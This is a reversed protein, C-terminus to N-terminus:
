TGAGGTTDVIPGNITQLPAANNANATGGGYTYPVPANTLPNFNNFAQGGQALAQALYNQQNVQPIPARQNFAQAIGQVNQANYGAAAGQQQTISQIQNAAGQTAWGSVAQDFQSQQGLLTARGQDVTQFAQAYNLNAQALGQQQIAQVEQMGQQRTQELVLLASGSTTVGSGIYQMAESSEAQGATFATQYANLGAESMAEAAQQTQALAETQYDQSEMQQAIAFEAENPAANNIVPQTYSPAALPTYTPYNIQPARVTSPPNFAMTLADAGSFATAPSGM